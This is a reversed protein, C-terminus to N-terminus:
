LSDSTHLRPPWLLGMPDLDTSLISKVRMFRSAPAVLLPKSAQGFIYWWTRRKMACTIIIFFFIVDFFVVNIVFIFPQSGINKILTNQLYGFIIIHTSKLKELIKIECM